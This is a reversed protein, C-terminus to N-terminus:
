MSRGSHKIPELAQGQELCALSTFAPFFVLNRGTWYIDDCLGELSVFVKWTLTVRLNGCFSGTNSLEEPRFPMITRSLESCFIVWKFLQEMKASRTFDNVCMDKHQLSLLIFHMLSTVWCSFHEWKAKQRYGHKQQLKDSPRPCCMRFVIRWICKKTESLLKKTLM